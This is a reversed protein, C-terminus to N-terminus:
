KEGKNSYIQLRKDIEEGSPVRTCNVGGTQEILLSSAAGAYLASHVLDGTKAYEAVFSAIYTDGAGTTDAVGKFPTVAPVRCEIGGGTQIYAGDKGMTVVVAGVGQDIYAEAAERASCFARGFAAEADEVSAKGIDIASLYEKQRAGNRRRIFKERAEETSHAGGLGGLDASIVAQPNRRKIEAITEYPVEYDVLCLHFYNAGRYEKPIDEYKIEPARTLYEIEKTGDEFYTLVNKTESAGKRRTLGKLDIGCEYLPGLLGEPTNEGIVSVLGADAGIRGLAVAGYAATGGLFPGDKRGNAYTINENFLYGLAVIEIM